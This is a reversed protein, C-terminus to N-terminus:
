ANGNSAGDIKEPYTQYSYDRAIIKLYSLHSEFNEKTKPGNWALAIVQILENQLYQYRKRLDDKQMETLNDM